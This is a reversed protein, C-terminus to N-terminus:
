FMSGAVVHRRDGSLVRYIQSFSKESYRTSFYDCDMSSNKLNEFFQELNIIFTVKLFSRTRSILIVFVLLVEMAEFCLKLACKPPKQLLKM